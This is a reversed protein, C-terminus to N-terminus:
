KDKRMRVALVPQPCTVECVLKETAEKKSDDWLLVKLSYISFLNVIINIIILYYIFTTNNCNM